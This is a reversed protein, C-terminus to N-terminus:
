VNQLSKRFAYMQFLYAVFGFGSAIMGSCAVRFFSLLFVSSVNSLAATVRSVSRILPDLEQHKHHHHFLNSSNRIISLNEDVSLLYKLTNRSWSADHIVLRELFLTITKFAYKFIVQLRLIGSQCVRAVVPNSM